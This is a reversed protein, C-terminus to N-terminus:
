ISKSKLSNRNIKFMKSSLIAKQYMLDQTRAEDISPHRQKQAKKGETIKASFQVQPPEVTNYADANGFVPESQKLGARLLNNCGGTFLVSPALNEAHYAEQAEGHLSRTESQSKM